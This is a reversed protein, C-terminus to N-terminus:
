QFKIYGHRPCVVVNDGDKFIKTAYKTGILCPINLERSVIAAHCTIGGHDTVIASAKKMAPLLEPTTGVSILIDGQNMKELDSPRNIIKVEGNVWDGTEGLCATSGDLFNVGQNVEDNRQVNNDIFKDAEEDFLIKNENAIYVSNRERKVLEQKTIELNGQILKIAEAITLYFLNEQKISKNFNNIIKYTLYVILFLCDKRYVKLFSLLSLAKIFNQHKLDIKLSNFLKQKEKKIKQEYSLLDNLEKKLEGSKKDTLESYLQKFYSLSLAPGRYGYNLWEWNKHITKLEKEGNNKLVLKLLEIRLLQTQSLNVPTLLKEMVINTQLKSGKTKKDLYKKLYNSYTHNELDLVAIYNMGVQIDVISIFEKILSVAQQKTTKFKKNKLEKFIKFLKQGQNITNKYIVDDIFSTDSLLKELSEAASKNIKEKEFYFWGYNDKHQAVVSSSQNLIKYKVATDNSFAKYLYDLSLLAVSSEENLLFYKKSKDQNNIFLGKLSDYYDFSKNISYFNQNNVKSKKVIQWNNLKNLERLVNAQNKKTLKIIQSTSLTKDENKFLVTLIQFLVKSSFLNEIM